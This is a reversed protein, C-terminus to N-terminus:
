LDGFLKKSERYIYRYKRKNNDIMNDIESIVENLVLKANQKKNKRILFKSLELREPYNSYRKDTKKFQIEAEEDFGCQELALAYICLSDNFTKDLDISSAYEVVQKYNETQFYCKIVKNITHPHNKYKGRLAKEYFIIAKDYDNNEKHADALNLTNQFTDSFALRKELDKIKKTPNIVANVADFADDINRKSLIQTFFYVAGGILPVFFIVFYWYYDNRSKYVHFLCFAQFAILLYYLM